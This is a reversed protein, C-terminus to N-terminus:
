TLFRLLVRGVETVGGTVAAHDFGADEFVEARGELDGADDPDRAPRAIVPIGLDEAVDTIDGDGAGFAGFRGGVAGGLREITIVFPDQGEDLLLQALRRSGLHGGNTDTREAGLAVFEVSHEAEAVRLARALELFLGVGDGRPADRPGIDYAVAVVTRAVGSPPVAIVDTSSVADAVPVAELRAAYGARQLHGLIYVAAAGEQQSGASRRALDVDFQEAHRAVVDARVRAPGGAKPQPATGSPSTCACALAALVASSFLRAGLKM